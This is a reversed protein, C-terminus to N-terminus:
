KVNNTGLQKQIEENTYFRNRRVDFYSKLPKGGGVWLRYKKIGMFGRAQKPNRKFFTDITQKKYTDVRFGERIPVVISRCNPHRPPLNPIDSRTAYETRYYVKDHLSACIVSTKADLVAISIWGVISDKLDQGLEEEERFQERAAKSATEWFQEGNKKFRRQEDNVADKLQKQKDSEVINKVKASFSLLRKKIGVGRSVLLDNFTQGGIAERSMDFKATGTELIISGQKGVFARFNARLSEDINSAMIKARVVKYTKQAVYGSVIWWLLATFEEEEQENPYLSNDFLIEQAIVKDLNPDVM